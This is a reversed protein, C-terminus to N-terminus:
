EFVSSCHHDRMAPHASDILLEDGCTQGLETRLM